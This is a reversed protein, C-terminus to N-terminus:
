PLRALLILASFCTPLVPAWLPGSLCARDTSTNYPVMYVRRPSVGQLVPAYAKGGAFVSVILFVHKLHTTKSKEKTKQVPTERFHARLLTPWVAPVIQHIGM